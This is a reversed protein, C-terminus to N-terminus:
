WTLPHWNSETTTTFAWALGARGLGALVHPNESVYGPDDYGVFGLRWVPGYAALTLAALLLCVGADRRDLPGRGELRRTAQARNPCKPPDIRDRGRPDRLEGRHPPAPAGRGGTKRAQSTPDSAGRRM